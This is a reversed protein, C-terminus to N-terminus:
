SRVFYGRSFGTSGGFIYQVKLLVWSHDNVLGRLFTESSTSRLSISVLILWAKVVVQFACMGVFDQRPGIGHHMHAVHEHIVFYSCVHSEMSNWIGSVEWRMSKIMVPRVFILFFLDDDDLEFLPGRGLECVLVRHDPRTEAVPFRSREM